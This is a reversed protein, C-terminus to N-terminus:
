RDDFGKHHRVVLAPRLSREPNDATAYPRKARHRGPDDAAAVVFPATDAYPLPLPKVDGLRVANRRRAAWEGLRELGLAGLALQLRTAGLPAFGYPFREARSFEFGGEETSPRRGPVLKRLAWAALLLAARADPSAPVPLPLDSWVAAGMVGPFSKDNFSTVVAARAGAAAAHRLRGADQCVDVVLVLGLRARAARGQAGCWWALGGEAGYLPALLLLSAGEAAALACLAQPDPEFREDVEYGIWRWGAREFALPVVNCLYAPLLAVRREFVPLAALAALATRGSFFPVCRWGEPRPGQRAIREVLHRRPLVQQALGLLLSTRWM